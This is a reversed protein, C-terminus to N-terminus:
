EATSAELNVVTADQLLYGYTSMRPFISPFFHCTQTNMNMIKIHFTLSTVLKKIKNLVEWVLLNISESEYM